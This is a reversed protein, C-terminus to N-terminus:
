GIARPAIAFMMTYISVSASVDGSVNNKGEVNKSFIGNTLIYKDQTINGSGDGIQKIFQGFMLVFGAFNNQQQTLLNNLFKDDDSARILRAILQAQNGTYNQAFISNNNKGTTLAAIDNPYTLALADADAFDAFVRGNLILSDNGSQASAGM